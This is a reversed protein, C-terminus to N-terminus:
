KIEFDQPETKIFSELCVCKESTLAKFYFTNDEEVRHIKITDNYIAGKIFSIMLAKVRHKEPSPLFDVLMNPYHTNNMHKNYDIDSYVIKRDGIFEFEKKIPFKIKRPMDVSLSEEDVFNNEFKSVPLLKHDQTDILCWTTLADAIVIDDKKITFSRYFTFGRSEVGTWTEVTIKDYAHATHYFRMYIKTLIFAQHLEDRIYELNPYMTQIHMNTTEQMFTLIASPTIERNANTDHWRITYEQTFKM